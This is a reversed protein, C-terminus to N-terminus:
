WAWELLARAKIPCKRKTAIFPPPQKNFKLELSIQEETPLSCKWTAKTRLM